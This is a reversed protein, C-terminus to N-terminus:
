AGMEPRTGSWPWNLRYTAKWTSWCEELGATACDGYVAWRIKGAEDVVFVVAGSQSGPVFPHADCKSSLNRWLKRTPDKHKVAGPQAEDMVAPTLSWGPLPLRDAIHERRLEREYM